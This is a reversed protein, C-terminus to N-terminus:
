QAYSKFINQKLLLIIYDLESSKNIWSIDAYKLMDWYVHSVTTGAEELAIKYLLLQRAKKDIESAKQISYSINQM